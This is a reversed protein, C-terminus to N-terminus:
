NGESDKAAAGESLQDITKYCLACIAEPDTVTDGVFLILGNNEAEICAECIDVTLTQEDSDRASMDGWIECIKLM